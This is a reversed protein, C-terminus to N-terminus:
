NLRVEVTDDALIQQDDNDDHPSLKEAWPRTIPLCCGERALGQIARRRFVVLILFIVVGQLCNFTDM